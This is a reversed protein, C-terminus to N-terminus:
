GFRFRHMFLRGFRGALVVRLVRFRRASGFYARDYNTTTYPCRPLTPPRVTVHLHSCALGPPLYVPRLAPSAARPEAQRMLVGCGVFFINM